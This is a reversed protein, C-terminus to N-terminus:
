GPLTDALGPVIGWLSQVEAYNMVRAGQRLRVATEVLVAPGPYFGPDFPHVGFETCYEALMRSTFRDRIKRASYAGAREFAQVTGGTDFHWRREDYTVGISRVYNLFETQVPGYLVFQAPVRTGPAM